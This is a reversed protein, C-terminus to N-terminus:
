VLKITCIYERRESANETKIESNIKRILNRIDQPFVPNGLISTRNIVM